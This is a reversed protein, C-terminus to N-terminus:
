RHPQAVTSHIAREELGAQAKIAQGQAAGMMECVKGDLAIARDMDIEQGVTNLYAFFFTYANTAGVLTDTSAM